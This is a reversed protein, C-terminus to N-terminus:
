MGIKLYRKVIAATEARTVFDAPAFRANEKGNIIGNSAAWAAAQTAWSSIEGFDSYMLLLKSMEETDATDGTNEADKKANYLMVALQERTLFAEPSFRGDGTGNVIGNKYGWAVAASYWDDNAIDSFVSADSGDSVDKGCLRYVVTVAMARTVTDNPAFVCKATGSMIGNEHVFKVDDFFWDNASVDDFPQGAVGDFIVTSNIKGGDDGVTLDAYCVLSFCALTAATCIMIRHKMKRINM